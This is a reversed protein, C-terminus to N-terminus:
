LKPALAQLGKAIRTYEEYHRQYRDIKDRELADLRVRGAPTSLRDGMEQELLAVKMKCEADHTREWALWDATWRSHAAQLDEVSFPFARGAAEDLAAFERPFLKRATVAMPQWVLLQKPDQRAAAAASAFLALLEATRPTADPRTALAGAIRVGSWFVAVAVILASLLLV